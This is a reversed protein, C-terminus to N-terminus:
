RRRGPDKASRRVNGHHTNTNANGLLQWLAGLFSALGQGKELPVRAISMDPPLTLCSLRPLSGELMDLHGGDSSASGWGDTLTM